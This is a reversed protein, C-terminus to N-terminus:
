GAAADSLGDSLGQFGRPPKTAAARHAFAYFDEDM